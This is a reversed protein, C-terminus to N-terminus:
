LCIYSYNANALASGTLTVSSASPAGTRAVTTGTAAAAANAPFFVCANPAVSLTASWSIVCTTTAASGITINGSQNTSGSVVAGNTTTGCAGSAITPTGTTSVIQGTGTVNFGPSKFANGSITYASIDIGTGVTNSTGDTCLLCGSSTVPAAGAWNTFLIGDKWGVGGTAANISLGSDESAGNVAGFSVIKIGHRGKASSSALMQTDFEASSVDVFNTAAATANVFSNFGTVSGLAGSSTNTGGDNASATSLFSAATYSRNNSSASTQTELNTSVYLGQKAGQANAGGFQYFIQLANANNGGGGTIASQDHNVYIQNFNISGAQSGVTPGTQATNLGQVISAATPNISLGTGNATIGASFTQLATWTSATGPFAEVFATTAVNTTNDGLSRTPATAGGNFNQLASWTNLSSLLTSNYAQVFATTAVNTTNDGSSRTPATAGGNLNQVGVWNNTGTASFGCDIVSISTGTASACLMDNIVFSGVLGVGGSPAGSDGIVGNTIWDVGHGPTVFGSQVVPQQASAPSAGLAFLLALIKKM